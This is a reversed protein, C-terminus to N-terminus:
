SRFNFNIISCANKFDEAFDKYHKDAILETSLGLKLDKEILHTYKEEISLLISRDNYMWVALWVFDYCEKARIQLNGLALMVDVHVEKM